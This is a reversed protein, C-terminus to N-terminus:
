KKDEKYEDMGDVQKGLQSDIYFRGINLNQLIVAQDFSDVEDRTALAGMRIIGAAKEKGNQNLACIISSHAMKRIDEAINDATIDGTLGGRNVQSSTLLWFNREQAMARMKITIDNIKHRYEDGAGKSPKIIDGYDITVMDPVYGDYYELNDLYARIDEITKSYMSLFFFKCNGGGWALKLSNQMDQVPIDIAAKKNVNEFEISYVKHEDLITKDHEDFNPAFYPVRYIGEKIPMSCASQWARRLMQPERMELSFFVANCGQSVGMETFAWEAHSKQGKYKGVITAMDGRMPRGLIKHLAGPFTFVYEETDHFAAVINATDNLFDISGGDSFGTQSFNAIEQEGKVPDNLAIAEKIKAEHLELGRLRIYLEASDVSYKTNKTKDQEDSLSQLFTAVSEMEEEDVLSSQKQLFIDQILAGPVDEYRDFYDRVWASVVKAYRTKFYKPQLIPLVKQAFEKDTILNTIISREQDMNIKTRIM